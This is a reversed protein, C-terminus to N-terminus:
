RGFRAHIRYPYSSQQWIVSFRGKPSSATRVVRGDSSLRVRPRFVGSRSIKRAFVKTADYPPGPSQWVALGNGDDDVAVAPRDGVGLRTIAGLRGTRSIRRGFVNTQTASTRQSWLLISDGQLDTALASYFTVNDKSRSIHLVSGLTGTHRWRRAWVHAPGGNGSNISRLFSIVADGDRDDGVLVRGYGIGPVAAKIVRLRSIHGPRIRRAVVRQYSESWAVVSRGSRDMGAAPGDASGAGLTMVRGLSGDKFFYRALAFYSGNEIETWVVLARGRPAVVVSPNIALASSSPPSLRLLAGVRGTASVRRGMVQSDQQWVVASDGNDDSAVQPWSAVPGLPSLTKIPGMPGRRPKIRAQAQFLCGPISTDCAAWVLLSDGQRDVAVTPSDQGMWGAPSVSRTPTWSAEAPPVIVLWMSLAGVLATATRLLHRNVIRDGRRM